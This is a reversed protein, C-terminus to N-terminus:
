VGTGGGEDEGKVSQLMWGEMEADSWGASWGLAFVGWHLVFLACIFLPPSIDGNRWPQRRRGVSEGCGLGFNVMLWSASCRFTSCHVSLPLAHHTTCTCVTLSLLMMSSLHRYCKNAKTLHRQEKKNFWKLTKVKIYHFSHLFGRKKKDSVHAILYFAAIDNM